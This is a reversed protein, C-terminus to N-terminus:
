KSWRREGNAQTASGRLGRVGGRRGKCRAAGRSQRRGRTAQRCSGGGHGIYVGWAEKALCDGGKEGCGLLEGRM